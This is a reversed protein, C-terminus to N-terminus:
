PPFTTARSDELSRLEGKESKKEECTCDKLLLDDYHNKYVAGYKGFYPTEVYRQQVSRPPM